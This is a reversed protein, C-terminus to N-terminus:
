EVGFIRTSCRSYRIVDVGDVGRQSTDVMHIRWTFLLSIVFLCM